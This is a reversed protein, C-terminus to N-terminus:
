LYDVLLEKMRARARHLRSMITGVSTDLAAAIEDYRMNERTRLLFVVRQEDPLSQLAKELGVTLDNRQLQCSPDNEEPDGDSLDNDDMPDLKRSAKSKLYNLTINIAIRRAWPFFPYRFDFRNLNYYIKVFTEQLLEDTDEHSFVIRSISSYLARQYRQILKEFAKGDGRRAKCIYRKDIHRNWEQGLAPMHAGPNQVTNGRLIICNIVRNIGRQALNNQCTRQHKCTFM